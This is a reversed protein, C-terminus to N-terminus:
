YNIILVSIIIVVFHTVINNTVTFFQRYNSSIYTIENMKTREISGPQRRFILSAPFGNDKRLGRRRHRQSAIHVYPFTSVIPQQRQVLFLPPLLYNVCRRSARPFAIRHMCRNRRVQQVRHGTLM